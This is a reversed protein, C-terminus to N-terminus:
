EMVRGNQIPIAGCAHDVAAGPCVDWVKFVSVESEGLMMGPDDGETHEVVRHCSTDLVAAVPRYMVDDARLAVSKYVELLKGGPFVGVWGAQLWFEVAALTTALTMLGAQSAGTMM